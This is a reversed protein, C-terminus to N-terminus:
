CDIRMTGGVEWVLVKLATFVEAGEAGPTWSVRRWPTPGESVELMGLAGADRWGRSARRLAQSDVCSDRRISDSRRVKPM